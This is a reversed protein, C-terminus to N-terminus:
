EARRLVYRLVEGLEDDARRSVLVFGNRSLVTQSATLSPLTEAAVATVTPDRFARAVLLGVAATGFGKRQESAVVSYGLEVEGAENPPGKYGCIGTLRGDAVLYWSGYGPQDPHSILMHRMWARTEPGNFEPPWTDPRVVGLMSALADAGREEADLSALSAAILSLNAGPEVLMPKTM